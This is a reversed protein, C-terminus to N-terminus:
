RTRGDVDTTDLIERRVDETVQLQETVSRTGFRIVEVPATEKATEVVQGHLVIEHDSETLEAAPDIEGEAIPERVLTAVEHTVPVRVTRQETVIHKRLRVRGREVTQLGVRLREESLMLEADTTPDAATYHRLLEDTQESTLEEESEIRPASRVLDTTFAVRLSRGELVAGDLPFFSESSGLFGTRVTAWSPAGDPDLYVLGIRGVADGHADLVTAGTLTAIDDSTFAM